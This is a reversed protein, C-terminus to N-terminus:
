TQRPDKSKRPARISAAQKRSPACATTLYEPSSAWVWSNRVLSGIGLQVAMGAGSSFGSVSVQAPDVNYAALPIAAPQASLLGAPGLLASACLIWRLMIFGHSQYERVRYGHRRKAIPVAQRGIGDAARHDFERDRHDRNFTRNRVACRRTLTSSRGDVILGSANPSSPRQVAM